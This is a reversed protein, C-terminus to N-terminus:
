PLNLIDVAITASYLFGTDTLFFAVVEGVDKAWILYQQEVLTDSVFIELLLVACDDFTGAPTPYSVGTALLSLEYREQHDLVGDKIIWAEDVVPVGVEMLGGIPGVPPYHIEIEGTDVKVDGAFHHGDAEEQWLALDELDWTPSHYDLVGILGSGLPAVVQAVTDDPVLSVGNHDLNLYLIQRGDVLNFYPGLDVPQANASWASVLIAVTLVCLSGIRKM